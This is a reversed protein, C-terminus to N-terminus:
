VGNLGQSPSPQKAECSVFPEKMLKKVIANVQGITLDASAFESKSM